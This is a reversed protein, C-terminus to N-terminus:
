FPYGKAGGVGKLASIEGIHNSPHVIAVMTLVGSVATPGMGGFDIKRDLDAESLGAVYGDTGAHVAKAYAKLAPMDIKVSNAWAFLDGEGFGPMPDSVGTKGAFSSAMLPAGGKLLGNVVADESMVAHAYTAGIPHAKGGPTHMVQDAAVDGLTGDVIMRTIQLQQSLLDKQSM